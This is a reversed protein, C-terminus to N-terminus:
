PTPEEEECDFIFEVVRGSPGGYSPIRVATAGGVGLAQALEAVTLTVTVTIGRRQTSMPRVARPRVPRMRPMHRSTRSSAGETEHHAGRIPLIRNVGAALLASGGM